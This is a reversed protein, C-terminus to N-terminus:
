KSQWDMLKYIIKELESACYRTGNERIYDLTETLEVIAPTALVRARKDNEKKNM